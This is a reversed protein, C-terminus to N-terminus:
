VEPHVDWTTWPFHVLSSNYYLSTSSVEPGLWAPPDEVVEDATKLELEAIILGQNAGEFVDIEYRGFRYRKKEIVSGTVLAMMERLDTVPIEYEWEPRSIGTNLGKITIWGQEVCVFGSPSVLQVERLRVIREKDLSLYGQQIWAYTAMDVDAQWGDKVLYKREHEAGM